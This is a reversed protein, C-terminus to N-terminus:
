NDDDFCYIACVPIESHKDVEKVQRNLMSVYFGNNRDTYSQSSSWLDEALEEAGSVIISHLVIPWVESLEFLESATPLYWGKKYKGTEFNKGYNNAFYYAPYNQAVNGKTGKKDMVKVNEWNKSGNLTGDFGNNKFNHNQINYRQNRVITQNPLINTEAGFNGEPSFVVSDSFNIGVGLVRKSEEFHGGRLSFIVAVPKANGKYDDLCDADTVTGDSLVIDGINYKSVEAAKETFCFIPRVLYEDLKNETSVYGNTMNVTFANTKIGYDDSSSWYVNGAVEKGGAYKVSTEVVSLNSFLCYLESASPLYWGESFKEYGKRIGYTGAEKWAPYNDEFDAFNAKQEPSLNYWIDRGDYNGKFGSNIYKNLTEIYKQEEVFSSNFKIGDESANKRLNGFEQESDTLSVGLVRYSDESVGGDVSFIVAVPKESGKYKMFDSLAYVSGDTLVIDGIHYVVKKEGCSSFCLVSLIVLIFILKKFIINKM